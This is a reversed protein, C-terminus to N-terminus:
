LQAWAQINFNSNVVTLNIGGTKTLLVVGNAGVTLYINTADASIQIGHANSGDPSHSATIRELATFSNNPSACIMDIGILRTYVGLGHAITTTAGSVVSLNGTRYEVYPLQYSMNAMLFKRAATDGAAAAPVLGKTGGSGSDGFAKTLLATMAEFNAAALFDFADPNCPRLQPASNSRRGLITNNTFQLAVPVADAGTFNVMIANPPLKHMKAFTVAEPDITWM